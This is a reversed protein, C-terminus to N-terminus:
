TQIHLTGPINEAIRMMHEEPAPGLVQLNPSQHEVTTVTNSRFAHMSLCM